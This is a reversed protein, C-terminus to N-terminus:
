ISSKIRFFVAEIQQLRQEHNLLIEQPSIEKVEKSIEKIEEQKKAIEKDINEEVSFEEPNIAVSEGEKKQEKKGFM